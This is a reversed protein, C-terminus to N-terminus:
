TSFSIDAKPAAKTNNVTNNQNITTIKEQQQEIQNATSTKLTAYELQQNLQTNLQTDLQENQLKIDQYYKPQEYKPLCSPVFFNIPTDCM